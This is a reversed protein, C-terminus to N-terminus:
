AFALQGEYKASKMGNCHRCLCQTNARTHPGGLKLPIIHDLTPANPDMTGKLSRPTKSGCMKCTWKDREFIDISDIPETYVRCERARRILKDKRRSTRLQEPHSLPYERKYGQIAMGNEQRYERAKALLREKNALYYERQYVRIAEAHVHDYRRHREQIAESNAHRYERSKVHIAEANVRGYERGKANLLERNARRFETDRARIAERNNRRYERDYDRRRELRALESPAREKLLQKM